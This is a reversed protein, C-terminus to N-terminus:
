VLRSSLPRSLTGRRESPLEMKTRKPSARSPPSSCFLSSPPECAQLQFSPCTPPPKQLNTVSPSALFSTVRFSPTTLPSAFMKALLSLLMVRAAPQRSLCFRMAKLRCAFRLDRAAVLWDYAPIRGPDLPQWHDIYQRGWVEQQVQAPPGIYM